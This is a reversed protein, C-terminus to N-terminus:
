LHYAEQQLGSCHGPGEKDPAHGTDQAVRHGGRRTSLNDDNAKLSVQSGQVKSDQKTLEGVSFVRQPGHACGKRETGTELCHWSKGNDGLGGHCESRPKGSPEQRPIRHPRPMGMQTITLCRQSLLYRGGDQGRLESDEEHSFILGSEVWNRLSPTQTEDNIRGQKKRAERVLDM